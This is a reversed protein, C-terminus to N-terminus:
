GADAPLTIRSLMSPPFSGKEFSRQVGNEGFSTVGDVGRKQWLYVGLELALSEYEPELDDVKRYGNITDIANNAAYQAISVQLPTPSEVGCGELIADAIDSTIPKVDLTM